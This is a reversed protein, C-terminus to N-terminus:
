NFVQNIPKLAQKWKPVYTSLTQFHGTQLLEIIGQAGIQAILGQHFAGTEYIYPESKLIYASADLWKGKKLADLFVQGNALAQESHTQVVILHRGTETLGVFHTLNMMRSVGAAIGGQYSFKPPTPDQILMYLHFYKSKNYNQPSSAPNLTICSMPTVILKRTTYSKEKTKVTAIKQAADVVVNEAKQETLLVIDTMSILKLLNEILEYCGHSFYWGNPSKSPEFPLLPNDMSVIKCGAYEELFTKLTADHGIQHCGLDAHMIGCVNVGKWAGGCEANEELILVKKGSHYQYLAEFLSFPSSGIMVCDFDTAFVSVQLLILFIFRMKISIM